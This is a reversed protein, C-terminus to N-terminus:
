RLALRATDAIHDVVDEFLEELCVSVCELFFHLGMVLSFFVGAPLATLSYRCQGSNDYEFGFKGDEVALCRSFKCGGVFHRVVSLSDVAILIITCLILLLLGLLRLWRDFPQYSILSM